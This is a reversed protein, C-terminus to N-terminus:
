AADRDNEWIKDLVGPLDDFHSIVAHASSAHLTDV